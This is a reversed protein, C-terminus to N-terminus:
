NHIVNKIEVRNNLLDMKLEKDITLQKSLYDFSYIIEGTMIGEIILDQLVRDNLGSKNLLDEEKIMAKIEKNLVSTKKKFSVEKVNIKLQEVRYFRNKKMKRIRLRRGITEQIFDIYVFNWLVTLGLLIIASVEILIYDEFIINEQMIMNIIVFLSIVSWVLMKLNIMPKNKKCFLKLDENINTLEQTLRLREEVVKIYKLEKNM